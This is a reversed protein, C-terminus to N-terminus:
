EYFFDIGKKSRNNQCLGPSSDIVEPSSERPSKQQSKEDFPTFDLAPNM